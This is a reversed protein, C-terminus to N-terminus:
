CCECAFDPAVALADRMWYPPLDEPTVDHMPKFVKLHHRQALGATWFMIVTFLPPYGPLTRALQNVLVVADHPLGFRERTWGAVRDACSSM